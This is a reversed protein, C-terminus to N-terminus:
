NILWLWIKLSGESKIEFILFGVGILVFPLHTDSLKIGLLTPIQSTVVHYAAGCTFGNVIADSLYKTVFGIHLIALLIQIIGSFFSLTMAVMVRGQMPDESIFEISKISASPSSSNFDKGKEEEDLFPYLVGQYKKLSEIVMLSVIAYTGQNKICIKSIISQKKLNIRFMQKFIVRRFIDQHELFYMCYLQLFHFTCAM